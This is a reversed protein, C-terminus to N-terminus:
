ALINPPHLSSFPIPVVQKAEFGLANHGSGSVDSVRIPASLHWLPLLGNAPRTGIQLNRQSGNECAERGVQNRRDGLKTTQRSLRPCPEGRILSRWIPRLGKEGQRNGEM